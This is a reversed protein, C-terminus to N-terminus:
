NEFIKLSRITSFPIEETFRVAGGGVRNDVDLVLDGGEIGEIRGMRSAGDMLLVEVRRGTSRRITSRDGPDVILFREMAAIRVRLEEIEATDVGFRMATREARELYPESEDWRANAAAADAWSVLGRVIQEAIEKLDPETRDIRAAESLHTAATELDGKALALRASAVESALRGRPIATPVYGPTPSPSQFPVPTPQVTATPPAAEPTSRVDLPPRRRAFPGVGFIIAAAGAAVLALVLLAIVVPVPITKTEVDDDQPERPPAVTQKAASSAAFGRPPPQSPSAVEDATGPAMELLSREIHSVEKGVSMFGTSEFLHAVPFLERAIRRLDLPGGDAEEGSELSVIIRAVRDQMLPFEENRSGLSQCKREIERLRAVVPRLDPKSTSTEDNM